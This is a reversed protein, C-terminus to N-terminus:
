GTTSPFPSSKPKPSNHRCLQPQKRHLLLLRLLRRRPLLNLSSATPQQPPHRRRNTTNPPLPARLSYHLSPPSHHRQIYRPSHHLTSRLRNRHFTPHPWRHICPHSRPFRTSSRLHNTDNDMPSFSIISLSLYTVKSPTINRSSHNRPPM